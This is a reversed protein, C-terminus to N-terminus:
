FNIKSYFLLNKEIEPGFRGLRTVSCEITSYPSERRKILPKSSSECSNEFEIKESVQSYLIQKQVSNLWCNDIPLYPITDAIIGSEIVIGLQQIFIQTM